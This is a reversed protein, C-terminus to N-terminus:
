LLGGIPLASSIIGTHFGIQNKDIKWSNVLLAPLIIGTGLGYVGSNFVVFTLSKYLYASIFTSSICM